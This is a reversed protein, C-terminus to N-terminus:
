GGDPVEMMKGHSILYIGQCVPCKPDRRRHSSCTEGVLDELLTYLDSFQDMVAALDTVTLSALPGQDGDDPSDVGVSSIEDPDLTSHPASSLIYRKALYREIRIASAIATM